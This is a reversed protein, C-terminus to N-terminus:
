LEIENLQDVICTLQDNLNFSLTIEGASVFHDVHLAMTFTVFPLLMLM